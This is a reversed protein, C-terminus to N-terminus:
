FVQIKLLRQYHTRYAQLMATLSFTSKMHECGAFALRQAVDNNALLYRIADALEAPSEIAVMYGTQEHVLIEEPGGCRTSIVPLKSAMAEITAISFGESNSSLVFMDLQALFEPTNDYFGIFHMQNVVGLSEMLSELKAMLEPKKHGAIVFHLRPNELLSVTRILTEYDKAPRINGLSGILVADAAVGLQNRLTTSDQQLYRHQDVGNYIVDIDSAPFLGRVAIFSALDRSVAVLQNIGCRMLKQKIGVFREQPNIDVRGHLTAILPIRLLLSIISYTLASGLLHAHVLVAREARLLCILKWYYPISFFGYPKLIRYPIERLKLQEEVWGPGKIIALNDYGPLRLQQAIDLFVTEAGGPGTTDIAHIITPRTSSTSSDTM